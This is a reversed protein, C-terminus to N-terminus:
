KSENGRHWLLFEGLAKKLFDESYLPTSFASPIRTIVSLMQQGRGGKSMLEDVRYSARHWSSYSYHLVNCINGTIEQHNFDLLSTWHQNFVHAFICYLCHSLSTSYFFQSGGSLNAPFCVRTQSIM